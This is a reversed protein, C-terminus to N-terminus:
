NGKTRIDNIGLSKGAFVEEKRLLMMMAQFLDM